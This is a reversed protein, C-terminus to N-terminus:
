GPSSRAHPTGVDSCPTSIRGAVGEDRGAGVLRARGM